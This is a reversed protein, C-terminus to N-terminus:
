SGDHDGRLGTAHAHFYGSWFHAYCKDEDSLDSDYIIKQARATENPNASDYKVIEKETGEEFLIVNGDIQQILYQESPLRAM